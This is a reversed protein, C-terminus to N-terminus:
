LTPSYVNPFDILEFLLACGPWLIYLIFHDSPKISGINQMSQQHSSLVCGFPDLLPSEM